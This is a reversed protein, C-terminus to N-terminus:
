GTNKKEPGKPPSIEGGFLLLNQENKPHEECKRERCFCNGGGGLVVDRSFVRLNDPLCFVTVLSFQCTWYSKLVICFFVVKKKVSLQLQICKLLPAPTKTILVIVVFVTLVPSEFQVLGFNNESDLFQSFSFQFHLRKVLVVSTRM